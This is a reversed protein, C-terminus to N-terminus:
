IEFGGLFLRGKETTIYRQNPSSPKDRITYDLLEANRLPKIYLDRLKNKMGFGLIDQIDDIDQPHLCFILINFLTRTRKDFLEVGKKNWSYGKFSEKNQLESNIKARLNELKVVNESWSYGLSYGESFFIDNADNTEACEPPINLTEIAEITESNLKSKDLNVLEILDMARERGLVLSTLPIVTKFLDDEIFLPKAGPAYINLYKYVNRVGSGIEDVWSFESFFKRINPNKAYPNFSDVSLLGRFIPKNPNTVEVRNSYIVMTTPYASTYERHVILNAIIERFILERFDKRQDGELYFKDPLNSRNKIFDMAQLYSDILNTRLTLRDDWRDLNNVRVLIDFKYAPLINQITLDKGFILASALTLGEEGTRNDKRYFGSSRLIDMNSIALWPHSNNVSRIITRAKDFLNEDLDEIKLYPYIENETFYNRKRFYLESIRADDEIRIDSENERDYIVGNHNHIQSSVPIKVCLVTLGDDELQYIPFNVPPNVVDKNNLATVIEKKIKEVSNKDVGTIIGDDNAGLIIAGGERNLFSVVSDYFNNPIKDKAEKFEAHQNEGKSLIRHLDEVTMRYFKYEIKNM